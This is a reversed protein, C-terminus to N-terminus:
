YQPNGYHQRINSLFLASSTKKKKERQLNADLMGCVLKNKPSHTKPHDNKIMYIIVLNQETLSPATDTGLPYIPLRTGFFRTNCAHKKNEFINLNELCYVGKKKKHTHGVHSQGKTMSLRVGAAYISSYVGSPFGQSKVWVGGIEQVSSIGSRRHM